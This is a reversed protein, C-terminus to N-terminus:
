KESGLDKESPLNGLEELFDQIDFDNSGEEKLELVSKDIAGSSVTPEKGELKVDEKEESQVSSDEEKMEDFLADEEDVAKSEGSSLDGAPEGRLFEQLDFDAPDEVEVALGVGEKEEFGVSSDGEKMEDSVVNDELAAGPEDSFSIDLPEKKLFEQIDFDAPDEGEVELGVDEKEEFEIESEEEKMEHLVVGEEVTAASEGFSSVSASNEKTQIPSALGGLIDQDKDPVGLDIERLEETKESTLSGVPVEKMRLSDVLKELVSATTIKQTRLAESVMDDMKNFAEQVKTDIATEIKSVVEKEDDAKKANLEEIKLAIEARVDKIDAASKANIEAKTSEINYEIKELNIVSSEGMSIKQSQLVEGVRDNVKNLTEQAKAGIATEIRKILEKERDVIKKLILKEIITTIEAKVGKIEADLKTTIEAKINKIKAEIKGDNVVPMGELQVELEAANQVVKDKKKKIAEEISFFDDVVDPAHRKEESSSSGDYPNTSQMYKGGRMKRSKVSKIYLLLAIIGIFIAAIVVLRLNGEVSFGGSGEIQSLFFM